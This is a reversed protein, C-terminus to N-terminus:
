DTFVDFDTKDVQNKPGFYMIGEGSTSKHPPTYNVGYGDVKNGLDYLKQLESPLFAKDRADLGFVCFYLEGNKNKRPKGISFSSSRNILTKVYNIFAKM